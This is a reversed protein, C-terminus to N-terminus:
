RLSWWVGLDLVVVQGRYDALKRPQGDTWEAIEV